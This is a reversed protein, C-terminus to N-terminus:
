CCACRRRRFAAARPRRRLGRLADGRLKGFRGGVGCGSAARTDVQPRAGAGPHRRQQARARRMRQRSPDGEQDFGPRHLSRDGGAPQATRPTGGGGGQRGAQRGRAFGPPQQLTGKVHVPTRLTLPSFNKPSVVARLDLTEDQLSATGDIWITTVDTNLVVVKPRAVGKIVDLDAVNCRIELAEDGKIMVGLAQALDVGAAEIALHSIAADRMHMRVDGDLSGLIEAASRGSGKVKVSGDLKGSLYPPANGSRKLRLWQALDVGLLRLDATWLAKDTRGDLQLYGALKGQATMGLFDAITLVGDALLLHARAPHLPELIDTGSDFTGVEIVVNANM